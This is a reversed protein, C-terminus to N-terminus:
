PLIWQLHHLVIPPCVFHYCDLRHQKRSAGVRFSVMLDARCNGRFKMQLRTSIGLLNVVILWFRGLFTWMSSNCILFDMICYITNVKHQYFQSFYISQAQLPRPWFGQLILSFGLEMIKLRCLEFLEVIWLAFNLCDFCIEHNWGFDWIRKQPKVPGDKSKTVLRKYSSKFCKSVRSLKMYSVHHLKYMATFISSGWIAIWVYFAKIWSKPRIWDVTEGRNLKVAFEDSFSNPDQIALVQSAHRWCVTFVFQSELCICDLCIQVLM